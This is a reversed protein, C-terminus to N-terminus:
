DHSNKTMFSEINDETIRILNTGEFFEKYWKITIEMTENFNWTPFWKLINNSKDCNLHLLTAEHSIDLSDKTSIKGRGFIQIINEQEGGKCNAEGYVM